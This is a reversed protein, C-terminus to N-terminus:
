ERLREKLKWPTYKDYFVNFDGDNICKWFYHGDKTTIWTFAAGIGGNQLNELNFYEREQLEIEKLMLTIIEIPVKELWGKQDKKTLNYPNPWVNIKDLDSKKSFLYEFIHKM